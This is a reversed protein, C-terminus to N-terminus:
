WIAHAEVADSLEEQEVTEGANAVTTKNITCM